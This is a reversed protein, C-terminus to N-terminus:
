IQGDRLAFGHWDQERWPIAMLGGNLRLNGQGLVAIPFLVLGDLVSWL